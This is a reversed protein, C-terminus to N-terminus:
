TTPKEDHAGKAGLLGIFVDELSPSIEQFRAPGLGAAELQRTAARVVQEPRVVDQAAASSTLWLSGLVLLCVSFVRLSRAPDSVQGVISAAYNYASDRVRRWRNTKGLAQFIEGNRKGLRPFGVRQKKWPKSYGATQKELAQFFERSSLDRVEHLGPNIYKDHQLSKM